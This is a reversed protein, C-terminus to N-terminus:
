ASRGLAGLADPTQGTSPPELLEPAPSIGLADGGVRLSRLILALRMQLADDFRRPDLGTLSAIKDLRYSLSNRHLFLRQATSSQSCNEEFLVQLTELLDPQQDLPGLLHSALEAKTRQDSLGVFAAVGLEDLCHVRNVGYLTRGLTLAARADDYSRALQQIGPHYRGIGISVAARTDNRLRVLLAAGARKLARLNAWPADGSLEEVGEAWAALDRTSSAKLVAIEGDGMYACITDDPLHFFKVISGIVTRARLVSRQVLAQSNLAQGPGDPALVYAAVNVLIVARPRTLDMGLIQGERLIDGEDRLPGRLLNFIFKNKLEHPGPLRDVVAVQTIVMEAVAKVLRPSLTEGAAPRGALLDYEQGCLTVAVRVWDATHGNPGPELLLGAEGVASSGAVVGRHDVLRVPASLVESARRAVAQVGPDLHRLITAV